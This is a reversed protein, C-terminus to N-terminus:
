KLQQSIAKAAIKGTRKNKWAAGQWEYPDGDPGTVTDGKARSKPAAAAPASSSKAAPKANILSALQSKEAPTLKSVLDLVKSSVKPKAAPAAPSGTAPAAPSGAAAKAPSGAAYKGKKGSGAQNQAAKKVVALLLRDVEANSIPASEQEVISEQPARQAYTSKAAGIGAKAAGIGAGVRQGFNQIKKNRADSKQQSAQRLSTLENAAIGGYGKRDLFKELQDVTLTGKQIGASGMWKSLENKLENAEISAEEAGAASKSGLYRGLSQAGRKFMGVPAEDVQIDENVIQYVKM